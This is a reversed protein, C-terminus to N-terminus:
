RGAPLADRRTAPVAIGRADVHRLVNLVTGGPRRARLSVPESYQHAGLYPAGDPLPNGFFDRGGNGPIVRGAALLSDARALRYAAAGGMGAGASGPDVFPTERGLVARTDVPRGVHNGYWANRDFVHNTSVSLDYTVRGGAAVHFINNYFRTDDARGGDWWNSTIMPVNQGAKIYVTNNYIRTGTIAGGLQFVRASDVGDGVSINYRVITNSSYSNGPACLLIFGGENHFSYNYQIVTGDCRYDADYGQGDATGRMGSVTNFQIVTRDSEFPWIGAAHDEARMRGNRVVNHEVLADDSGWIKIGDGGVDEVLNRRIVVGTSRSGNSTYQSIGNRDTRELRCDEIILDEFRSPEGGAGTGGTAAFLIGHGEQTNHKVNSGNVDRVVLDRLRIGRMVGFGDTVVRIGTRRSAVARAAGLNTVELTTLIWYSRNRLVVADQFLGEGDIRPRDGTGYAGVFVPHQATGEGNAPNLQGGWREGRRFLLSDGPQYDFANVKELSRWATAPTLGDAADNGGGADVHLRRADVGAIAILVVAAVARLHVRM